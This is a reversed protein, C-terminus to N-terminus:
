GRAPAQARLFLAVGERVQAALADRDREEGPLGLALRYSSFGQWLGILM